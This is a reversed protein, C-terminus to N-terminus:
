PKNGLTAGVYDRFGRWRNFGETLQAPDNRIIGGPAAIAPMGFETLIRSVIEPAVDDGRVHMAFSDVEEDEGM